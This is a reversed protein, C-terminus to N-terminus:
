RKPKDTKKGRPPLKGTSRLHRQWALKEVWYTFPIFALAYVVAFFVRGALPQSRFVFLVLIIMIGQWPLARKASRSWSPPVPERLYRSRPKAPASKGKAQTARAPKPGPRGAKPEEDEEPEVEHGTEDVYVYEWEHRRDKQRRRRQKKTPM